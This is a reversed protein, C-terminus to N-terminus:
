RKWGAKEYVSKVFEHRQVAEEWGLVAEKEGDAFAEYLRAVNRGFLPVGKEESSWEGGDVVVEETTGSEHEFVEIKFGSSTADAINLFSNPGTILITAKTGYLTWSLGTSPSNSFAPGGRLHYSFITHSPNSLTGHLMVQDPATRPVTAGTPTGTATTLTVVPHVTALHSSFSAIPAIAHTIGELSHMAYITLLNGGSKDDNTYALAEPGSEGVLTAAGVFSSSLLRGVRGGDLLEKVKRVTPSMGAQLGVLTKVGKEKAIKLLEEAQAANSALPWECFVDKGAKLAPLLAEYHKDVRISCVVLEVNPDAALDEYTGYAKVTSPLGHTKIAAEASAVSSNCLAVIEYKSTNKLYPLHAWVAWSQSSSLGIFGIKIPAM